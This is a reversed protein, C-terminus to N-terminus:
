KKRFFAMYGVFVFPVGLLFLLLIYIGLPFGQRTGPSMEALLGIVAIFMYVPGFFICLLIFVLTWGEM